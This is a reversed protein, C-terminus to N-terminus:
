RNHCDVSREAQLKTSVVSGTSPSTESGTLSSDRRNKRVSIRAGARHTAPSAGGEPRERRDPRTRPRVRRSSALFGLAGLGIAVGLWALASTWSVVSGTSTGCIEPGGLGLAAGLGAYALVCLVCKPTIALLAVPLLWRVAGLSFETRQSPM